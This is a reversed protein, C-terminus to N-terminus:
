RDYMVQLLRMSRGHVVIASLCGSAYVRSDIDLKHPHDLDVRDVPIHGHIVGVGQDFPGDAALWEQWIWLCDRRPQRALPLGPKLGAHVFVLDGIRHIYPLAAIWSLREAGLGVRLPEIWDGGPDIALEKLVSTGGMMTLWKACANPDPARLIDVLIDEHNGTLVVNEAGPVGRRALDLARVSEPGRDIFDGLHIVTAGDAALAAFEARLAEHLVELLPAHGHVDGIAALVHGQPAPRLARRWEHRVVKVPM